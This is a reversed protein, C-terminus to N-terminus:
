ISRWVSHRYRRVLLIVIILVLLTGFLIKYKIVSLLALEFYSSVSGIKTIRMCTASIHGNKEDAYVIYSKDKDLSGPGNSIGYYVTIESSLNGKWVFESKFTRYASGSKFGNAIPRGKFVVDSIKYSGTTGPPFVCIASSKQPIILVILGFLISFFYFTIKKM